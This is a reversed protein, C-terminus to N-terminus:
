REIYYPEQAPHWDIQFYDSVYPADISPGRIISILGPIIFPMIRPREWYNKDWVSRSIPFHLINKLVRFRTLIPQNFYANQGNEIFNNQLISDSSTCFISVGLKENHSINNRYMINNYSLIIFVGVDNRSISNNSITNNIAVAVMIGYESQSIINGNVINNQGSLIIGGGGNRIIINNIITNYGIKPTAPPNIPDGYYTIIGAMNDSIINDIIRNNDSSIIIGYGESSNQITFEHIMVNNATINAGYSNSTGDIITTLKNEGLLNLSKNISINGSYTGNYVLVTGNKEVADIGEQIINFHNYGWGPTSSNYDDDVFVMPPQNPREMTVKAYGWFGAFWQGAFTINKPPFEGQDARMIWFTYEGNLGNGPKNNGSTHNFENDDEEWILYVNAIKIPAGDMDTIVVTLKFDQGWPFSDVRPTVYTGNVIQINDNASGNGPWDIRLVIVGGPKTPTVCCNWDGKTGVHYMTTHGVPYLIDGTVTINKWDEWPDDGYYATAESSNSGLITFNIKLTPTIGSDPTYVPVNVKKDTPDGSGDDNIILQISTIIAVNTSINGQLSPIIGTAVFFLIIGVVLGKRILPYKDM